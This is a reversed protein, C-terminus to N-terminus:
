LGYEDNYGEDGDTDDREVPVMSAGGSGVEVVAVMAVCVGSGGRLM